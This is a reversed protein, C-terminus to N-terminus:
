MWIGSREICSDAGTLRGMQETGFIGDDKVSFNIYDTIGGEWGAM